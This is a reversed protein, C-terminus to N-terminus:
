IINPKPIVLKLSKMKDLNLLILDRDYIQTQAAYPLNFGKYSFYEPNLGYLEHSSGVFLIETTSCHKNFYKRKQNYGNPIKSLGIEIYLFVAVLPM